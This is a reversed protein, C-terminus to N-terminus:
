PCHPETHGPARDLGTMADSLDLRYVQVNGGYPPPLNMRHIETLQMGPLDPFRRFFKRFPQMVGYDMNWSLVWRPQVYALGMAWCLYQADVRTLADEGWFELLGQRFAPGWHGQFYRWNPPYSIVDFKRQLHFAFPTPVFARDGPRAGSELLADILAAQLASYPLHRGWLRERFRYMSAVSLFLLGAIGAIRLATAWKPKKLLEGLRALVAEALFALAIYFTAQYIVRYSLVFVKLFLFHVALFLLYVAAFFRAGQATRSPAIAPAALCAAVGLWIGPHWVHTRLFEATVSALSSWEGHLGLAFLRGLMVNGEQPGLQLWINTVGDTLIFYGYLLPIAAYPLIAVVLDQWRARRALPVSVALLLATAFFLVATHTLIGAVFAASMGFLVAPRPTDEAFWLWLALVGITLCCGATMEPRGHRAATVMREDSTLGCLFAFAGLTAGRRLLFSAGVAALLAFHFTNALPISEPGDGFVRILAAHVTAYYYVTFHYTRNQINFATGLLPSGFNGREALSFSPYSYEYDDHWFEPEIGLRYSYVGFFVLFVALGGLWSLKRM